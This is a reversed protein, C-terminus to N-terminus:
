TVHRKRSDRRRMALCDRSRIREYRGPPKLYHERDSREESMASHRTCFVFRTCACMSTRARMPARAWTQTCACMDTCASGRLAADANESM